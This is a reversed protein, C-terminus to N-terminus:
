RPQGVTLESLKVDRQWVTNGEINVIEMRAVPEGGANEFTLTSFTQMDTYVFVTEGHPPHFNANTLRGSEIEYLDYAGPRRILRVDTRHRDGSLLIVGHIRERAILDFIEEREARHGAWTDSAVGGATATKADDAWPVPSALLKFKAKSTRLADLLWRKQVPGLMSAAPRAWNERYFRGDLMFVEVPGLTFNFWTAPWEPEAGYAPNNWNRRFVRFHGLKWSPNDVYPGMFVDDIAVDHDDWIAYIPTSGALRRWEPRSQRCYYTYDHLGNVEGALDIYVNDGLTLFADPRRLRIADWVRENVPTYHACAGFSIRVREASAPRAPTRFKWESWRPVEAGGILIRYSYETGAKLGTVELVATYDEAARARSRASAVPHTLNWAEAVRVEVDAETETRVWVRMRDPALAGLMPGHVLGHTKGAIRRKYTELQRLPKVLGRPGALFREPPFGLDLLVNMEREADAFQGGQALALILGFRSEGEAPDRDVWERASALADARRGEILDLIIAQGIRAGENPNHPRKFARRDWADESGFYPLPDGPLYAEPPANPVKAPTATGGSSVQSELLERRKALRAARAHVTDGERLITKIYDHLAETFTVPLAAPVATSAALPDQPERERVRTALRRFRTEWEIKPMVVRYRREPSLDTEYVSAGGGTAKLTAGFGAWEPPERQIQALANMYAVVQAGTIEVSVNEYGRQGGTKFLANLDVPGVSLTNRIVQYPHCFGLDAGAALRLAEAALRAISFGDLDAPNQFVFTAAEPALSKERERVWALMEADVPIVDHRMPVLKGEARLIKKAAADLEIELRGVWRAYSGAQVIYAGTEPVLIPAHLAEHSHGSVFVHVGPAARSWEACKPASEHCVAVVLAAGAERLRMSERALARGSDAFNLCRDQRPVILGILGVKVGNVNIMRSPEFAPTGGAELLNLSLLRQGLVAEYRRLGAFGAEDHEHNGITVGDYGIRRLAEYTMESHTKFAVLDGKEAVDGADVLLVDSRQARVQKVYGSVYPLGGLGNEGARVHDHLDNTHLILVRATQASLPAAASLIAFLLGLILFRSGPVFSSGTVAFLVQRAASM